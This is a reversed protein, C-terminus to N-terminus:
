ECSKLQEAEAQAQVPQQRRAMVARWINAIDRLLRVINTERTGYLRLQRYSELNPCQLTRELTMHALTRELEVWLREIHNTSVRIINRGEIVFHSNEYKHCVTYHRYGLDRLCAYTAFQDTFVMSGEAVHQQIVPILM